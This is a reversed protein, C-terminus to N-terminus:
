RDPPRDGPHTSPAVEEDAVLDAGAARGVGLLHRIVQQDDAVGLRDRETELILQVQLVGDAPDVEVGEGLVCLVGSRHDLGLRRQRLLRPTAHEEADAVAAVLRRLQLASWNTLGSVVASAVLAGSHANDVTKAASAVLAFSLARSPPGSVGANKNVALWPM